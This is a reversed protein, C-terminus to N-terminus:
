SPVIKVGIIMIKVVITIKIMIIIGVTMIWVIIGGIMVRVFTMGSIIIGLITCVIMTGVTIIKVIIMWVIAM